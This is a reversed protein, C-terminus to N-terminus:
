LPGPKMIVIEEKDQLQLENSEKREIVFNAWEEQFQDNSPSDTISHSSNTVKLNEQLISTPENENARM